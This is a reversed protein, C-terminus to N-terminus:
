NELERKRWVLLNNTDPDPFNRWCKEVFDDYYHDRDILFYYDPHQRYLAEAASKIHYSPGLPEVRVSLGKFLEQLVIPDISDPSRGEVFLTHRASQRIEEPRPGKKVGAM